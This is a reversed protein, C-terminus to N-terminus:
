AEILAQGTDDYVFETNGLMVHKGGRPHRYKGEAKVRANHAAVREEQVQMHQAANHAALQEESMWYPVTPACEESMQTPKAQVAPQSKSQKKHTALQEPTMWYPIVDAYETM